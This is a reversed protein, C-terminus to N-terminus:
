ASSPMRSRTRDRPSPSTYLLCNERMIESVMRVYPPPVVEYNILGMERAEPQQYTTRMHHAGISTPYMGTALAARSPSCVGSVSYANTYRVGEAALRDLNPTSVTTDGFAAIYPGM